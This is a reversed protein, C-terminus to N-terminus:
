LRDFLFLGFNSQGNSSFLDCGTLAESLFCTWNKRRPYHPFELTSQLQSIVRLNEFINLDTQCTAPCPVDHLMCCRILCFEGSM